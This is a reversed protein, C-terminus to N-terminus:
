AFEVQRSRNTIEYTSKGLTRQLDGSRKSKTEDYDFNYTSKMLDSQKSSKCQQSATQQNGAPIYPTHAFQSTDVGSQVPASKVDEAIAASKDKASLKAMDDSLSQMEVNKVDSTIAPEKNKKRVEMCTNDLELSATKVALDDEIKQLDQLLNQLANEAIRLKENLAKITGDIEGVEHCLQYQPIDRCLEVNRRHTRM